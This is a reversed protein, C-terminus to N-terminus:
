SRIEFGINRLFKYFREVLMKEHQDRKTALDAIKETRTRFAGVLLDHCLTVDDTALSKKQVDKAEISKDVLKDDRLCSHKAYSAIFRVLLHALFRRHCWLAEYDNYMCITSENVRCEQAWYSFASFYTQQKTRSSSPRFETRMADFLRQLKHRDGEDSITSEIYAYLEDKCRKDDNPCTILPERLPEKFEFMYKQLLFQRYSLGSYDSVHRQCWALSNKWENELTPYTFGRSERLAMVHRRHSWADYNNGYRDACIAAINLETCLPSETSDPDYRSDKANLVCSLLWRRYAFAEFCKPKHYLVLRSFAFEESPELKHNRVLERRMNWFTTVEPNLLLAGLLWKAITNPEERRHKNQRLEFLRRHAYCYLPQVCWSALGLCDEQHFVPSKNENDEAPVIEFSKLSPNKKVVNEIDSLIKEAAPFIDDQMTIKVSGNTVNSPSDLTFWYVILGETEKSCREICARHLTKRRFHQPSISRHRKFNGM